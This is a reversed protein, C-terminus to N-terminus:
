AQPRGGGGGLIARLAARSTQLKPQIEKTIPHSDGFVRRAIREIEEFTEVAERLDGLLAQRARNDPQNSPIYIRAGEYLARAYNRRMRLTQEHDNGFVRRAVPIEKRLLSKAEKLRRLRILSSAYNNAM